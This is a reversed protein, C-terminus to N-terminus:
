GLIEKFAQILASMEQDTGMTIRLFDSIRPKDFHRVLIGRNKLKQYLVKGEIDSHRAFVFNAATPLMEFGMSLMQTVAWGKTDSLKRTVNAVYDRDSLVAIGVEISIQDLNYPNFSYKIRELGAILDPHGFCLSLRMGALARSKSFTQVVLLNDYKETLGICSAEPAFDIYAEDLVLLRGPNSQLLREVEVPALMIGTPANPNALVVHGEADFYREVNVSFDAELPIEVAELQFLDAYVRYFGYTIDPFVVKDGRDFFAMFAYALSEDSGGAAFVKEVPVGYAKAAATKLRKAEPDPYLRLSDTRFRTVAEQVLLSPGYPCENTNLKIYSKDQPQEGPVYPSLNKTAESLFCSM